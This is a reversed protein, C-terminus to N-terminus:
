ALCMNSNNKNNMERTSKLNISQTNISRVAGCITVSKPSNGATYQVPEREVETLGMEKTGSRKKKKKTKEQGGEGGVDM